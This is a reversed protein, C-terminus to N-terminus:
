SFDTLGSAHNEGHKSNVHTNKGFCKTEATSTQWSDLNKDWEPRYRAWPSECDSGDSQEEEMKEEM